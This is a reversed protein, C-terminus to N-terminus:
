DSKARIESLWLRLCAFASLGAVMGGAELYQGMMKGAGWGIIGAALLGFFWIAIARVIRM